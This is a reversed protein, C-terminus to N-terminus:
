AADALTADPMGLEHRLMAVDPTAETPTNGHAAANEIARLWRELQPRHRPTGAAERPTLGDFRADPEDLMRQWRARMFGAVIANRIEGPIAEDDGAAREDPRSGLELPEVRREVLRADRGLTEAVLAIAGELREESMADFTLEGPRLEFTGLGVRSSDTLVRGEAHDFLVPAGELLVSRPPLEPRRASLEARPATWELCIGEGDETDALDVLDPHDALATATRDDELEWRAHAPVVEDGEFTLFSPPTTRSPPSFRLLEAACARFVDTLGISREGALREIEALIEEEESAAFIAAPGWLEHGRPGDIVRCLLVDWQATGRSVRDSVVTVVRDGVVEELEISVGPQVMRARWLGLRAQSLTQAAAREAATLAPLAAFREAPTGGGPLARDLHVYSCLLDATQPTTRRDGELLEDIAEGLHVPHNAITWEQLRRWVAEM